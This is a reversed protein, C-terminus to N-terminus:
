AKFTRGLFDIVSQARGQQSAQESWSHDGETKLRLVASRGGVGEKDLLDEIRATRNFAAVREGYPYVLLAPSHEGIEGAAAVKQIGDYRFGDLLADPDRPTMAVAARYLDPRRRVHGFAVASTVPGGMLAVPTKELGAVARAHAVLDDLAAPPQEVCRLVWWGHAALAQADRDYDFLDRAEAAGQLVVVMPGPARDLPGTLCGDVPRAGDTVQVLDGKSLREPLLWPQRGGVPEIQRTARDYVYYGSPDQPGSVLVLFTKRGADCAVLRVAADYNFFARLGELHGGLSPDAFVYDATGARAYEAAVLGGAPDILAGVPASDGRSLLPAGLTRSVVDYHRLSAHSEGSQRAITWVKGPDGSAALCRFDPDGLPGSRIRKWAPSGPARGLLTQVQGAKDLDCRLIPQGGQTMWWLTGEEGQDVPKQEGTRLDASYLTLVGPFHTIRDIMGNTTFKMPERTRYAAVLAHDADAGTASVLQFDLSHAVDDALKSMVLASPSKDLSVSLIRRYDLELVADAIRSFSKTITLTRPEAVGILLRKPGAWAVWRSDTGALSAQHLLAAPQGTSVVRLRPTPKGDDVTRYLFAVAAGDPSLAADIMQAPRYLEEMSYPVPKPADPTRKPATVDVTPDPKGQALAAAPLVLPLAAGALLNRRSIM